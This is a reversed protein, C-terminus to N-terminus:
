DLKGVGYNYSTIPQAGQSFGQLPLTAIQMITSFITMTGVAIDGGYRLLSRNLAISVFCETLVMSCPSLGLALCPLLLKIDLRIYKKRVKLITKKGCLFAFVLVTSIAQSIITALTAGRTEMGFGFIFVPDLIINLVAGTIVIKMSIITFGQATIFAVLGTTLEAFITGYIYIQM